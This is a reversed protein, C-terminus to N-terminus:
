LRPSRGERSAKGTEVIVAGRPSDSAIEAPMVASLGETLEELSSIANLLRLGEDRINVSANHNRDHHTQCVPCVWETDWLTLAKNIKHCHSCRKSSAFWKDVVVVRKFHWQVKYELQRRFTAAGADYWSKSHGRLKTKALSAVDLDEICIVAHEKVTRTSLKHLFDNRQNRARAYRRALGQKAKQYNKSQPEKQKAKAKNFRRSVKRHQRRLKKQSKRYFRPAKVKEGTSFSAFDDLGLDIGVPNDVSTPEIDPMEFHCVFTVYWHGAAEQKFTASKIEGEIPRHLHIEVLGIKPLKVASGVVVVRQPIRFANATRKRSKRKPFRARKEFFHVYARDLDKLVQQLAQSDCDALFAFEPEQKLLTLEKAMDVYSLTKGTTQYYEQRRQLFYNWVVRRCGAWQRFQRQQEPTPNLRYRYCKKLTPMYM